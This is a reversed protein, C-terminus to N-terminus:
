SSTLPCRHKSSDVVPQIFTRALRVTLQKTHLLSILSPPKRFTWQPVRWITIVPLLQRIQDKNRRITHEKVGDPSVVRVAVRPGYRKLQIPKRKTRKNIKDTKPEAPYILGWYTAVKQARYHRCTPFRVYNWDSCTPFGVDLCFVSSTLFDTLRACPSLWYYDMICHTQFYSM